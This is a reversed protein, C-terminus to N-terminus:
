RTITRLKRLLQLILIDKVWLIKVFLTVGYIGIFRLYFGVHSLSLSVFGECDLARFQGPFSDEMVKLAETLNGEIYLTAIKIMQMKIIKKQLIYVEDNSVDKDQIRDKLLYIAGEIMYRVREPNIWVKPSALTNKYDALNNEHLRHYFLQENVHVIEHATSDCCKLLWLDIVGKADVDFYSPDLFSKNFLSAEVLDARAVEVTKIRSEGFVQTNCYCRIVDQSQMQAKMLKEIFNVHYFNDDHLFSIFEGKSVLYAERWCKAYWQQTEMRIYKIRSDSSSFQEVIKQTDDTSADDVVIIEIHKYSQQVVSEIAIKLLHPRNYTIISVTVLPCNM